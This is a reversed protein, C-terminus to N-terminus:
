QGLLEKWEAIAKAQKADHEAQWIGAEKFYKIAGTHYPFAWVATANKLTFGKAAKQSGQFEALNDYLMKVVTYATNEAMDAGTYFPAPAAVTRTDAKNGFIGAPWTFPEWGFGLGVVAKQEKSSLPIVFLGTSEGMETTDKGAVYFVADVRGEKLDRIAASGSAFTLYKLDSRTMNNVKLLEDFVPAMWVISPKEAYVKKGKLDKISQIGAGPKTYLGITTSTSVGAGCFLIRLPLKREACYPRTSPASYATAGMEGKAVMEISQTPGSTKEVSGRMPTYKTLMESLYASLNALKGGGSYAIIFHKPLQSEKGSQASANSILFAALILMAVTLIAPKLGKNRLKNM